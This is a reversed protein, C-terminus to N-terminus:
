SFHIDESLDEDSTNLMNLEEFSPTIILADILEVSYFKENYDQENTRFFNSRVCCIPTKWSLQWQNRM